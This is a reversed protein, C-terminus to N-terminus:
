FYQDKPDDTKNEDRCHNEAAPIKKRLVAARQHGEGVSGKMRPWEDLHRSLVWEAFSRVNQLQYATGCDEYSPAFGGWM